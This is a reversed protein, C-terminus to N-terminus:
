EVSDKELGTPLEPIENDREERKRLDLRSLLTRALDDSDAEEAIPARGGPYVGILEFLYKLAALNGVKVVEETTTKVMALGKRSVHRAIKERLADLDVEKRTAATGGTTGARESTKGKANRM